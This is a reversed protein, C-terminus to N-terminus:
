KPAITSSSAYKKLALRAIPQIWAPMSDIFKDIEQASRNVDRALTAQTELQAGTAKANANAITKADLDAQVSRQLISQGKFTQGRVTVDPSPSLKANREAVAVDRSAKDTDAQAKASQASYIQSLNRGAGAVGKGLEEGPNGMTAMAGGPTSAGAGGTGSLIPNLGAATLDKVERQHATSSMREQFAMQERAMQANAANTAKQGKYGLFGGVLEAAAGGIAAGAM